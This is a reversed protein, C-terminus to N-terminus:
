RLGTVIRSEDAASANAVVFHLTPGPSNVLPLPETREEKGTKRFERERAALLQGVKGDRLLFDLLGVLWRHPVSEVRHPSCWM